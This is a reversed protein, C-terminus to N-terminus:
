VPEAQFDLPNAVNASIEGKVRYGGTPDYVLLSNKEFFRTFEYRPMVRMVKGQRMDVEIWEFMLRCIDRKQEERALPWIQLFSELTLGTEILQTPEPLTLQSLQQNLQERTTRYTQREILGDLYLEGLRKLRTTIEQRRDEQPHNGNLSSSL